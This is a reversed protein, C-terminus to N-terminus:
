FVDKGSRLATFIEVAAGGSMGLAEALSDTDCNLFPNAEKEDGLRFPLTPVGRTRLDRLEAIRADAAQQRWNLSEVYDANKEAYEHGGCVVTDDPLELLTKLSNWMQAMTGEFVRGCGLASLNDGVFAFGNPLYYTVHSLTHGPTAIVFAEYGAITIKEGGRVVSTVNDIPEEHLFPATLPVGYKQMLEANGDTHDWHHHTNLIETLSLGRTELEDIVAAAEGPDIVAVAGTDPNHLMWIYNDELAPIRILEASPSM